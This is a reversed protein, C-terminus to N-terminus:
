LSELDSERLNFFAQLPTNSLPLNFVDVGLPYYGLLSTATQYRQTLFIEALLQEELHSFDQCRLQSGPPVQLLLIVWQCIPYMQESYPHFGCYLSKETQVEDARLSTNTNQAQYLFVVLPINVQLILPARLSVDTNRAQYLSVALLVNEKSSGAPQCRHKTSLLSFNGLTCESSFLRYAPM